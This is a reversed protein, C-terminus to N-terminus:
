LCFESNLFWLYITREEKSHFDTQFPLILWNKKFIALKYEKQNSRYSCQVSLFNGIKLFTKTAIVTLCVYLRFCDVCHLSDLIFKESWGRIGDSNKQMWSLVEARLAPKGEHHLHISACIFLIKIKKLHMSGSLNKTLQAEFAAKKWKKGVKKKKKSFLLKISSWIRQGRLLLDKQELNLSFQNFKSFLDTALVTQKFVLPNM